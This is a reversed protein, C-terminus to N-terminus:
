RGATPVRALLARNQRRFDKEYQPRVVSEVPTIERKECALDATATDVEERKLEALLARDYSTGPDPPATAGSRVGVGVIAQFRKLLDEDIQDADEYRYGSDRMCAAWKENARVMRQDEVIRQDLEDLKGVVAELVAAGGFVADSAQKTCGGLESFDGTDLAEAFTASPNDGWLARDYAARDAASLSKRLVDNPDSQASGRGFLTSIGYGFQKVFEEDSLHAKGTLAQQRAVPDVPTYEFGQARMCDRIRGEVRSQREISGTGSVSLGLQEEIEAPPEDSKGGGGCGGVLMAACAIATAVV